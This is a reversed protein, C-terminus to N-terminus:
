DIKQISQFRHEEDFLIRFNGKIGAQSVFPQLIRAPFRITRGDLSRALVQQASGRYWREMEDASISLSVIIADM